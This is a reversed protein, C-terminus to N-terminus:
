DEKLSKACVFASSRCRQLNYGGTKGTINLAEGLVYCGPLKHLQFDDGIEAFNLGGSMVKSEDYSRLSTPTLTLTYTRLGRPAKLYSLLRKTIQHGPITIKIQAKKSFNQDFYGLWLSTNFVAPGSMGRHTFLVVRDDQYVQKGDLFLKTTAEVSSGSLSSLDEKTNLGCLAPAPSQYSLNYDKAFQFVFDSGGVKPFSMGGTAIVVRKTQFFGQSTSITFFDGTKQIQSVSTSYQIQTQNEQNKQVLFDVLQKSKNSELLMRGNDEQKSYISFSDLFRIMDQPGFQGLVQHVRATQDGLYTKFSARLNTFNCRGKGSLLIKIGPSSNQELILKKWEKPLHLGLFLGSAGAGIICCDLM